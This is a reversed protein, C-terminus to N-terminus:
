EHEKIQERDTVPINLFIQMGRRMALVGFMIALNAVVLTMFPPWFGRLLILSLGAAARHGGWRELVGSAHALSAHLDFSAISRGSGKWEGEGESGAILVIGALALGDRSANTLRHRVLGSGSHLFGRTLWPEM